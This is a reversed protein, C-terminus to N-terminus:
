HVTGTSSSGGGGGGGGGGGDSGGVGGVTAHGGRSPTRMSKGRTNFVFTRERQVYFHFIPYFAMAVQLILTRADDSRLHSCRTSWELNSPGWPIREAKSLVHKVLFLGLVIHPRTDQSSVSSSVSTTTQNRSRRNNRVNRRSGLHVRQSLDALADLFQEFSMKHGGNTYRRYVVAAEEDRVAHQSPLVNLGCDRCFTKFPREQMQLDDGSSKVSYCVFISWLEGAEGLSHEPVNNPPSISVPSLPMPSLASRPRRRNPSPTKAVDHKTDALSSSPSILGTSNIFSSPAPKNFTGVRLYVHNPPALSTLVLDKENYPQGEKNTLFTLTSINYHACSDEKLQQFTYNTPVWSNFADLKSNSRWLTIQVKQAM